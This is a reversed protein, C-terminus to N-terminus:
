YSVPPILPITICGTLPTLYYPAFPNKLPIPLPNNPNIVAGTDAVSDNVVEKDDPIFYCAIDVFNKYYCNQNELNISWVLIISIYM